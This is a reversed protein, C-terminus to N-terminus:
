KLAKPAHHEAHCNACILICKRAEAVRKDFARSSGAESIGFEKNKDPHHFQLAAVSKNYGCWVCKGGFLEVLKKKSERRSKTVFHKNKCAISCFKTQRGTLENDCLHWDCKM